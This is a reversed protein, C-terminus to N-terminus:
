LPIFDMHCPVVPLLPCQTFAKRDSGIYQLLNWLRALWLFPEREPYMSESSQTSQLNVDDQCSQQQPLITELWWLFKNPISWSFLYNLILIPHMVLRPLKCFIQDWGQPFIHCTGQLVPDNPWSLKTLSTTAVLAEITREPSRRDRLWKIDDRM